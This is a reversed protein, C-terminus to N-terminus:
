LTMYPHLDAVGESNRLRGRNSSVANSNTHWDSSDHKIAYQM